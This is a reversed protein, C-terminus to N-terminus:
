EALAACWEGPSLRSLNASFSHNHLYLRKAARTGETNGFVHGLDVKLSHRLGVGTTGHHRQL